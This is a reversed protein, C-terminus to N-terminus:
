EWKEYENEPIFVGTVTEISLALFDWLSSFTPERKTESQYVTNVTEGGRSTMLAASIPAVTLCKLNLGCSTTTEGPSATM